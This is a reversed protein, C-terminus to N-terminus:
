VVSKRDRRFKPIPRFDDKNIPLITLRGIEFNRLAQGRSNPKKSGNAQVPSIILRGDVLKELLQEQLGAIQSLTSVGVLGATGKLSHILRHAEVTADRDDLCAHMIAFARRLKPMDDRIEDVFSEIAERNM